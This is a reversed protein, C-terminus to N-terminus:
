EEADDIKYGISRVSKIFKGTEGLKERLHSVHVDISRETVGGSSGSLRDLIRARSFVHGKRSALLQLLTFEVATLPTKKGLVTVEHKQPDIVLTDGVCLPKEGDEGRTRRLVARIRSNLEKGSFPKVMYDDAGTDLGFVKDMEEGKASLIIVPISSLREDEKLRKCIEFGSAGPMMVDLLILDPIEQELQDFAEAGSRAFRLAYGKPYLFAELLQLNRQDDDVCLITQKTLKGM